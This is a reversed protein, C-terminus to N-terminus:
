PELREHLTLRLNQAKGAEPFTPDEMLAKDLRSLARDIAMPRSDAAAVIEAYHYLMTASPNKQTAATIYGLAKGLLEASAQPETQEAARRYYIWALTDLINPWYPRRRRVQEALKEAEELNPKHEAYIWAKLARADDHHFELMGRSIHGSGLDRANATTLSLVQDADALASDFDGLFEYISARLLLVRVLDPQRSLIESLMKVADAADTEYGKGDNILRTQERNYRTTLFEVHAMSIKADDEKLAKNPDNDEEIAKIARTIDEWISRAASIAAIREDPRTDPKVLDLHTRALLAQAEYFDGKRVAIAQRLCQVASARDSSRLYANAGALLAEAALDNPGVTVPYGEDDLKISGDPLLEFYMKSHHSVVDGARLFEGRRSFLESLGMVAMHFRRLASQRLDPQQDFFVMKYSSGRLRLARIFHREALHFVEAEKYLNGLHVHADLFRPERRVAETLLAAAKILACTATDFIIDAAPKEGSTYRVIAGVAGRWRDQERQPRDATTLLNDAVTRALSDGAAGKALNVYRMLLLICADLYDPYDNIISLYEAEGEDKRGAWFLLNATVQRLAIQMPRANDGSALERFYEIGEEARGALGYALGCPSIYEPSPPGLFMAKKYHEIALDYYQRTLEKSEETDAKEAQARRQCAKAMWAQAVHDHPFEAVAARCAELAAEAAQMSRGFKDILMWYFGATQTHVKLNRPELARARAHFSRGIDIVVQLVNSQEIGEEETLGDLLDTLKTLLSQRESSFKSFAEVRFVFQRLIEKAYQKDAKTRTRSLVGAILRGGMLWGEAYDPHASLLGALTTIAQIAGEASKDREYSEILRRRAEFHNSNVKIVEQYIDRAEDIKGRAKAASGDDASRKAAEEEIRGRKELWGAYTVPDDTPSDSVFLLTAGRVSFDQFGITQPDAGMRRFAVDQPSLPHYVTGSLGCPVALGPVSISLFFLVLPIRRM